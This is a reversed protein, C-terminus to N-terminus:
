YFKKIHHKTESIISFLLYRFLNSHQLLLQLLKLEIKIGFMQLIIMM